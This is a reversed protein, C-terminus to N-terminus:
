LIIRSKSYNLEPLGDYVEAYEKEEVLFEKWLRKDKENFIGKSDCKEVMKELRSFDVVDFNPKILDPLGEPLSKLIPGIPEWVERDWESAACWPKYDIICRGEDNRIFSFHHFERERHIEVAHPQLWERIAYMHKIRAYQPRAGEETTQGQSQTHCSHILKM